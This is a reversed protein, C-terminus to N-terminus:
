YFNAQKKTMVWSQPQQKQQQKQKKQTSDLESNFTKLSTPPSLNILDIEALLSLILTITQGAFLAVISYIFWYFQETNYFYLILISEQLLNITFLGMLIFMITISNFKPASALSDSHDSDRSLTTSTSTAGCFYNSANTMKTTIATGTPTSSTDCSSCSSFYSRQQAHNKSPNKAKSTSKNNNDLSHHSLSKNLQTVPTPWNLSKTTTTNQTQQPQKQHKSFDIITTHGSSSHNGRNIETVCTNTNTNTSDDDTITTASGTSNSNPTDSKNLLSSKNKVDFQPPLKIKFFFFM